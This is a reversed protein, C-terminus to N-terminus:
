RLSKIAGAIERSFAELTENMATVTAPYDEDAPHSRFSSSRTLLETKGDGALLSWRANLVSDGGEQRDFRTIEVTVQYDVHTARKWPYIRVQQTPILVSLNEALVQTINDRLSGAWKHFESLNMENSSTRTVIQTRDLHEPLTIPGIGIASEGPTEGTAGAPNPLANLVYFRAPESSACGLLSSLGLALGLLSALALYSPLRM